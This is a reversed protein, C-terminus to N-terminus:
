AYGHIVGVISLNLAIALAAALAAVRWAEDIKAASLAELPEGLRYHDEKTLEIRLLGAMVAMPHGANPSQTRSRDRKWIRWGQRADQGCFLGALLLFAATFRAPVLNLLDDLRAAAKGLFEHKGHYGIMADLTNVARYFIAGPLGLASYFLLPAVFSDSINEAVSEITAGAIGPPELRTPDRSCLSQLGSRAAGINEQALANRVAAASRGLARFAFTSKLLLVTVIIAAIPWPQVSFIILAATAACAAPFLLALLVGAVFQRKPGQSPALREYLSIMKGMWVVPHILNPYEGLLFDLLLALALVMLDPTLLEPM